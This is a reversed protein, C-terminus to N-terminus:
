QAKLVYVKNAIIFPNIKKSTLSEDVERVSFRLEDNWQVLYTMGINVKGQVHFDDITAQEFEEPLSDYFKGIHDIQPTKPTINM